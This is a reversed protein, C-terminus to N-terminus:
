KAAPLHVKPKSDGWYPQDPDLQDLGKVLVRGDPQIPLTVCSCDVHLVIAKGDFPKPDFTEGDEKLPAILLPRSPNSTTSGGGVYAFSQSPDPQEGKKPRSWVMLDLNKVAGHAVLQKLYDQSSVPKLPVEKGSERAIVPATAESPFEGYDVEFELLALGLQRANSVAQFRVAQKRKGLLDFRFFEDWKVM